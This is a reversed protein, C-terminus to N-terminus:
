HSVETPQVARDSVVGTERTNVEQRLRECLANTARSSNRGLQAVTPWIWPRMAAYIAFSTKHFRGLDDIFRGMPPMRFDFEDSIVKMARFPIGYIRAVDAVSYAEMDIADAGHKQSMMKKADVGAVAGASVLIGTGRSNIIETDDAACIIKKPEILDAIKLGPRLAGAYGVSLISRVQGGCQKYVTDTAIRAPVPGMGAFGAVVDGNEFIDVTHRQSVQQSRKWGKVLPAIEVLDAAIIALKSM